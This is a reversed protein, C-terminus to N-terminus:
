DTLATSSQPHSMVYSLLRHFIKKNGVKEMASCDHNPSRNISVLLTTSNALICQITTTNSARGRKDIM